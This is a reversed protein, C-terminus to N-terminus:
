VVEAGEGGERGRGFCINCAMQVINASTTDNYHTSERHVAEPQM